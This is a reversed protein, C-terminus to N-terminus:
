VANPLSGTTSSGPHSAMSGKHHPPWFTVRLMRIHRQLRQEMLRQAGSSYFTLCWWHGFCWGAIRHMRTWGVSSGSDRSTRTRRGM